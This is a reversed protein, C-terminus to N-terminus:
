AAGGKDRLRVLAARATMAYRRGPAGVGRGFAAVHPYIPETIPNEHGLILAPLLRANM